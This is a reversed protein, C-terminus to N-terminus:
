LHAPAQVEVWRHWRNVAVGMKQELPLRFFARQADFCAAVVEAPVGHDAM